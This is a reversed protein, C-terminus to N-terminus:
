YVSWINSKVNLAKDCCTDIWYLSQIWLKWNVLFDSSKGIQKNSNFKGTVDASQEAYSTWYFSMINKRQWANIKYFKCCIYKFTEMLHESFFVVKYQNAATTFVVSALMTMQLFKILCYVIVFHLLKAYLLSLILCIFASGHESSLSFLTSVSSGLQSDLDIVSECM